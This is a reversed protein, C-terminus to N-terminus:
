MKKETEVLRYRVTETSRVREADSEELIRSWSFSSSILM